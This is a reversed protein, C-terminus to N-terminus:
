EIDTPFIISFLWDLVAEETLEQNIQTIYKDAYQCADERTDEPYANLYNTVYAEYKANYAEETWTLQEEEALLCLAINYTGRNIAQQMISKDTVGYFSILFEYSVGYYSALMHYYDVTQQYFYYYTDTPLDAVKTCNALVTNAFISKATSIREDELWEFYTQHDNDEYEAVQEDTLIINHISNLTMTFVVAKGAMNAVHYDEPFTLNVDFTEGIRHGIIGDTFGPIYKNQYDSIFTTVNQATGGEFAVGDLTGSYNINVVDGKKATRSTSNIKPINTVSEYFRVAINYPAVELTLALINEFDLEGLTIYSSPIITSYDPYTFEPHKTPAKTQSAFLLTTTNTGSAASMKLTNAYKDFTFLYTSSDIVITFVDGERTYTTESIGYYEYYGTALSYLRAKSEDQLLELVVSADVSYWYGWPEYETPPTTVEEPLTTGHDIVEVVKCSALSLMSLILPLILFKKLM